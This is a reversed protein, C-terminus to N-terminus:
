LYTHVMKYPIEMPNGYCKRFRYVNPNGAGRAGDFSSGGKSTTALAGPSPSLFFAKQSHSHYHLAISFVSDNYIFMIMDYLLVIIKICTCKKHYHVAICVHYLSIYYLTTVTYVRSMIIFMSIYSPSHSHFYPDFIAILLMIIYYLISMLDITHFDHLLYLM